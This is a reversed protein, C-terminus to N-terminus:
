SQGLVSEQEISNLAELRQPRKLRSSLYRVVAAAIRAEGTSGIQHEPKEATAASIDRRSIHRIYLGRGRRQRDSWHTLTVNRRMRDSSVVPQQARSFRALPPADNTRGSRIM